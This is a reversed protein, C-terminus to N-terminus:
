YRRRDPRGNWDSAERHIRYELRRIREEIRRAEGPQIGNRSDRWIRRQIGAAENELSRAERPSLIRRNAMERIDGRIREVRNNMERAFRHGSYGRGYNYPQYNYAPPAWRQAAAPAAVSIASVAAIIPVIFKRM